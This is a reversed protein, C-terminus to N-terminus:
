TVKKVKVCKRDAQSDDFSQVPAPKMVVELVVLRDGAHQLALDPALLHYYPSV